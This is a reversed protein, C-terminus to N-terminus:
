GGRLLSESKWKGGLIERSNAGMWDELVSAYVTRFDTNHILDGDDLRNLAPHTGLLGPRVMDGIFYMPAATGHDTGGSGNQAVRRGFESFVMTMVRSNNGQAQLDRYFANLASGVQDLLRAHQGAQNAHTDFGGLTVYYVRTPLEARIMAGVMRLQGALNSGPYTVLPSRAVAKRVKDSSVRADLTTRKLFANQSREEEVAGVHATRAIQEYQEELKSDMDTGMWRFLEAREFSVPLQTEGQMALPSQRGIVVGAEPVPTGECTNDFYRGIWGNSKGKPDATHWIDMSSFHSRNPNPYGVGQVIGAVGEDMLEKFGSMAPNLGIEDSGDIALAGGTRGPEKIGLQPRLRHYDSSGYPVVTNLGDNGGGLQVVVLIRDEPVGAQSSVLSGVPLMVGRASREIFLPTTAALSALTVGQQLFLRRSWPTQNHDPM